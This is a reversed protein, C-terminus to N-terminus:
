FSLFSYIKYKSQNKRPNHFLPIRKPATEQTEPNELNELNELIELNDLNKPIDQRQHRLFSNKKKKKERRASDKDQSKM